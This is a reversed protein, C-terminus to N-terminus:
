LAAIAKGLAMAHEERTDWATVFRAADAGWDDGWDDESSEEPKQNTPDSENSTM